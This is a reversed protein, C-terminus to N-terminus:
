ALWSTSAVSLTFTARASIRVLEECNADYQAASSDSMWSTYQLTAASMGLVVFQSKSVRRAKDCFAVAAGRVAGALPVVTTGYFDNGCIVPILFRVGAPVQDLLDVFLAGGGGPNQLAAGGSCVAIFVLGTERWIEALLRPFYKDTSRSRKFYHFSDVVFAGDIAEGAYGVPKFVDGRARGDRGSAPSGGAVPVSSGCPACWSSNLWGADVQRQAWAVATAHTVSNFHLDDCYRDRKDKWSCLTCLGGPLERRRAIALAEALDALTRATNGDLAHAVQNRKKRGAHGGARDRRPVGAAVVGSQLWDLEAQTLGFECSAGVEVVPLDELDAWPVGRSAVWLVSWLDQHVGSPGALRAAAVARDRHGGGFVRRNRLGGRSVSEASGSGPAVGPPAVGRPLASIGSM